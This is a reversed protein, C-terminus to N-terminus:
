REAVKYTIRDEYVMIGKERLIQLIDQYHVEKNITIHLSSSTYNAALIGEKNSFDGKLYDLRKLNEVKEFYVDIHHTYNSENLTIQCSSSIMDPDEQQSYTHSVFLWMAFFLLIRM